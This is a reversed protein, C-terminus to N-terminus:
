FSNNGVCRIKLVVWNRVGLGINMFRTNLNENTYITAPAINLQKEFSSKLSKLASEIDLKRLVLKIM